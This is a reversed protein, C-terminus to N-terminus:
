SVQCVPGGLCIHKFIKFIFEERESSEFLDYFNSEESIVM